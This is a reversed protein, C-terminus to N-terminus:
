RLKIGDVLVTVNPPIQLTPSQHMFKSPVWFKGMDCHFCVYIPLFFLLLM